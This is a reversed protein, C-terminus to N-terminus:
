WLRRFYVARTVSTRRDLRLADVLPPTCSKSAASQVPADAFRTGLYLTGAAENTSLDPTTGSVLSWTPPIGGALLPLGLSYAFPLMLLSERSPSCRLPFLSVDACWVLRRACFFLLVTYEPLRLRFLSLYMPCRFPCPMCSHLPREVSLQGLQTTTNQTPNNRTLNPRRRSPHPRSRRRERWRVAVMPTKPKAVTWPTRWASASM